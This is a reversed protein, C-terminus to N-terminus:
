SSYADIMAARVAWVKVLMNSVGLDGRHVGEMAEQPRLGGVSVSERRQRKAQAPLRGPGGELQM